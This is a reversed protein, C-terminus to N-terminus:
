LARDGMDQVKVTGSGMCNPCPVLDKNATLSLSALIARREPSGKPLSSALRILSARDSASLTRPM